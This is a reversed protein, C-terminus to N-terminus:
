TSIPYSSLILKQFYKQSFATVFFSALCSFFSLFLHLIIYFFVHQNEQFGGIYIKLVSPFANRLFGLDLDQVKMLPIIYKKIKFFETNLHKQSDYESQSCKVQRSVFAGTKKWLLIVIMKKLEVM